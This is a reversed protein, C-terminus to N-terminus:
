VADFQGNELRAKRKFAEYQDPYLDRVFDVCLSRVRRHVQSAPTQSHAKTCLDCRCGWNNYTSSSGHVVDAADLRAARKARYTKLLAAWADRCPQCRCRLNSYGNVSGHRPDGPTLSM